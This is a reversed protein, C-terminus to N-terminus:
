NSKTDKIAPFVDSWSAPVDISTSNTRRSNSSSKWRLTVALSRAALSNSWTSRWFKASWSPRSMTRLSSLRRESRGLPSVLYIGGGDRMSAFAIQLGDPSWAPNCVSGESRSIRLPQEAGIFKVYLDAPKGNERDWM